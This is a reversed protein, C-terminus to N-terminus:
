NTTILLGDIRDSAMSYTEDFTEDEGVCIRYSIRAYEVAQLASIPSLDYLAYRMIMWCAPVDNTMVGWKHVFLPAPTIVFGLAALSMLAFEMTKGDNGISAYKMALSMCPTELELRPVESAPRCYTSALSAIKEEVKRLNRLTNEPTNLLDQLGTEIRTRELLIHEGLTRKDQCLICDCKFGWHDLDVLSDKPSSILPSKYWTTIEANAPLDMSARLIMMDGIFSRFSNSMCSHNMYSAMSWVGGSHLGDSATKESESSWQVSDIHSDRTLLVAGFGNLLIAKEVLFRSSTLIQVSYPLTSM